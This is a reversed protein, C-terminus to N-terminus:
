AQKTGELDERNSYDATGKRVTIVLEVEESSIDLEVVHKMEAGKEGEKADLLSKEEKQKNWSLIISLVMVYTVTTILVLSM